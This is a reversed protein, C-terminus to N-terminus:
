KPEGDRPKAETAAKPDLGGGYSQGLNPPPGKPKNQGPGGGGSSPNGQGAKGPKQGPKEPSIPKIVAGEKTADTPDLVIRDQASIGAVIEISQGFDRGVVVPTLRVKNERTVTAIQTGRADAILASAPVVLPPNLRKVTFAIQAYMGPLLRRDRNSIQIETLMTRTQPDLSTATRTVRGTFRSSPFESVNIKAPIGPRINTAFSQPVNVQIRLIDLRAIRYLSAGPSVVAGGVGGTDTAGAARQGSPSGGGSRPASQGAGSDGPAGSGAASGNAGATGVPAGSGAQSDGAAGGAIGTDPTSGYMGSRASGSGTGSPDAMGVGAAAGGTDAGLDGAGGGSEASANGNGAFTGSDLLRATVVGAFPARVQQFSRLVGFRNLNAQSAAVNAQAAGVNAKASDLAAEYAAIDERSAKVAAELAAVNAQNNKYAAVKEDASQQSIAGEKVLYLWRDRTVQALNRDARAQELQQRQREANQRSQALNALARAQESRQQVVQARSQSLQAYAERAQQDVEPTDIVALIQGQRVTDGIDVLWQRVYGTSRASIDTEQVAQINGPLTLATSAPRRLRCGVLFM